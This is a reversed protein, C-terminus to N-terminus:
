FRRSRDYHYKIELEIVSADYKKVMVKYRHFKKYQIFQALIPADIDMNPNLEVQLLAWSDEYKIRVLNRIGPIQDRLIEELWELDNESDVPQATLLVTNPDHKAEIDIGLDTKGPLSAAQSKSGRQCSCFVLILFLALIFSSQFPSRRKKSPSPSTLRGPIRPM